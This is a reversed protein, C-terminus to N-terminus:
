SMTYNIEIPEPLVEEFGSHNDLIKLSKYNKYYQEIGQDEGFVNIYKNFVVSSANVQSVGEMLAEAGKIGLKKIGKINDSTDGTIMSIWFERHAQEGTVSSWEGLRYNYHDGQLRLMDKDPSSIFAEVDPVENLIERTILCLDDAELDAYWVANYKDLLYNTM